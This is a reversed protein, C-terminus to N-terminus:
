AFDNEDTWSEVLMPSLWFNKLISVYNHYHNNKFIVPDDKTLNYFEKSKKEM